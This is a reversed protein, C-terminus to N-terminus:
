VSKASVNESISDRVMEFTVVEPWWEPIQRFSTTGDKKGEIMRDGPARVVIKGSECRMYEARFVEGRDDKIWALSWKSKPLLSLLKM